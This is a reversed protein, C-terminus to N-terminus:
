TYVMQIPIAKTSQHKSLQIQTTFTTIQSISITTVTSPTGHETSQPICIKIKKTCIRQTAICQVSVKLISKCRMGSNCYLRFYSILRFSCRIVVFSDSPSHFTFLNKFMEFMHETINTDNSKSIWKGRTKHCKRRQINWMTINHSIIIIKWSINNNTITM